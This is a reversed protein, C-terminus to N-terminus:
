DYIVKRSRRSRAAEPARGPRKRSVFFPKVAMLVRFLYIKLANNAFYKCISAIFRYIRATKRGKKLAKRASM